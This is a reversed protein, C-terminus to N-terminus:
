GHFAYGKIESLFVEKPTRYQLSRRPRNNLKEVVLDLEEQSVTSFDTGKPFYRRLERNMYENLGRDCSRYPRACYVTIKLEATIQEHKSIEKGNDHTMTLRHSEPIGGLAAHSARVMEEASQDAVLIGRFYMSFREAFTAVAGTGNRASVVLDSEWDGCRKKREVVKPREEIGRRHPIQGRKSKQFGFWKHQKGQYTLHLHLCGGEEKNRWVYDYIAQRSVVHTRHWPSLRRMRGAIQDPSKGDRLEDVVHKLVAPDDHWRSRRGYSQRRREEACERAKNAEYWLRPHPNGRQLERGVTSQHCGILLAIEPQKKGARVLVEIQDRQSRTLHAM